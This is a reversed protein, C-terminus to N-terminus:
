HFRHSLEPEDGHRPRCADQAATGHRSGRAAQVGPRVAHRDGSGHRLHGTIANAVEVTIQAKEGVELLTDGDNQGLYVVTWTVDAISQNDDFYSVVTQHGSGSDPIGDDPSTDTPPTLDIPEGAIANTVVFELSTVSSTTATAVMGGRIAMSGRAESLGSHVTEKAREASFVGTSLVVFAFISAVVVFAILIIATELGTIGRQDRNMFGFVSSM